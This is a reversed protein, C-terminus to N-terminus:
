LMRSVGIDLYYPLTPDDAFNQGYIRGVNLLLGTSNTWFSGKIGFKFNGGTSAYWGDQIGAYYEKLRHHEFHSALTRDYQGEIALSWRPAFYGATTTLEAGINYVRAIDSEYRRMILGPKLLVMFGGASMIETQANISIKFDDLPRSGFSFSSEAGVLITRQFPLRYGYSVGFVSGYDLGVHVGIVHMGAPEKTKWNIEQSQLMLINLSCAMGILMIRKM